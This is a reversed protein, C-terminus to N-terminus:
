GLRVHRKRGCGRDGQHSGRDRGHVIVEAGDTAMRKAIAEGLGSSSGTVLARKGTPRLDM